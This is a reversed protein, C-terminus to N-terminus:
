IKTGYSLAEIFYKVKGGGSLFLNIEAQYGCPKKAINPHSVQTIIFGL